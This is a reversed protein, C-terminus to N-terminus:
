PTVLGYNFTVKEKMLRYAMRYLAKSKEKNISVWDTAIEKLGKLKESLDDMGLAEELAQKLLSEKEKKNNIKKAILRLANLRIERSDAQRIIDLGKKMDLSSWTVGIQTLLNPNKSIQGFQLATELLKANEDITTKTLRRTGELLIRMQLYPSGGQQAITFVETPDLSIKLLFIEYLIEEVGNRFPSKRAEGEAMKLLSKGKEPDITQWEQAIQLLRKALLLPNQIQTASSIARQYVSLAERRNWKGLRSGTQLLGYSHPEPHGTPISEVIKLAKEENIQAWDTALGSLLYSRDEPDIVKEIEQFAKEYHPIAQLENTKAKL